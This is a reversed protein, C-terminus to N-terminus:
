RSLGASPRHQQSLPVGQRLRIDNQLGGPCTLQATSEFYKSALQWALKDGNQMRILGEDFYKSPTRLRPQLSKPL